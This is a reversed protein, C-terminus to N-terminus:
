RKIPQTLEGHHHDHKIFHRIRENEEKQICCCCCCSCARKLTLFSWHISTLIFVLTNTRVFVDFLSQQITLCWDYFAFFACAFIFLQITTTYNSMMISIGLSLSAVTTYIFYIPGNYVRFIIDIPTLYILHSRFIIFILCCISTFDASKM